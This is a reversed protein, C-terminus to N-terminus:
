NLLFPLFTWKEPRTREMSLRSVHTRAEQVAVRSSQHSFMPMHVHPCGGGAVVFRFLLIAGNIQPIEM